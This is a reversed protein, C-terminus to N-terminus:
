FEHYRNIPIDSIQFNELARATQVGYYADSPVEKEGLLDKETRTPGPAKGPAQRVTPTQSQQKQAGCFVPASTLAIGLVIPASASVRGAITKLLTNKTM